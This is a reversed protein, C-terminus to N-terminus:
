DILGPELAADWSAQWKGEHAPVEEGEMKGVRLPPLHAL